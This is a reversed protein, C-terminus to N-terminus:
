LIMQSTRWALKFWCKPFTKADQTEEPDEEPGVIELGASLSSLSICSM